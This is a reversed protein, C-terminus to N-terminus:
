CVQMEEMEKHRQAQVRAEEEERRAREADEAEKNLREAEVRADEEAKAKEQAQREEEARKEEEQLLQSLCFTKLLHQSYSCETCLLLDVRQEEEQERSKFEDWLNDEGEEDVGEQVPADAKANGLDAWANVNQLNIEQM